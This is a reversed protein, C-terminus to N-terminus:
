RDIFGLRTFRATLGPLRAPLGGTRVFGCANPAQAPCVAAESTATVSPSGRGQARGPDRPARLRGEVARFGRCGTQSAADCVPTQAERARAGSLARCSVFLRPVTRWATVGLRARAGKGAHKSAVQTNRKWARNNQQMLSSRMGFFHRFQLMRSSIGQTVSAHGPWWLSLTPSTHAYQAALSCSSLSKQLLTVGDRTDPKSSKSGSKSAPYAYGAQLHLCADTSGEGNIPSLQPRQHPCAACSLLASPPPSAHMSPLSAARADSM